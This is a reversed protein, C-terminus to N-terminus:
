RRGFERELRARDLRLLTPRGHPCTMPAAARGLSDLIGDMAAPTLTEGARVSVHCAATAAIRHRLDGPARPRERDLLDDLVERVFREAAAPPMLAPIEELRLSAPGFPAVTFGFDEFVAAAALLHAAQPAPLDVVLPFLLRQREVRRAESEALLREYMVREHAAHQDVLLLGEATEAIIWTSAYQALARPRDAAGTPDLVPTRPDRAAAIGFREPASSAETTPVPSDPAAGGWPTAPAAEGLALPRGGFPAVPRSTELGDRLARFILDHVASPRAFRVEHKAPHVNVDVADLPLDLFLVVVPFRGRPLLTAYAEGVAHLLRRDRIPRGNVYLMLDRTTPRQLSPASQLGTLGISGERRTVPRLAAATAPGFLDAVRAQLGDVAPWNFSEVGGSALRFAVGPHAAGIRVLGELLHAAETAPARLFKRRAPANHFLEEVQVTTGRPHAAPGAAVRRGAAVVVRTGESGGTSTTLTLRSVSAISPLAEGRFGLTSIAALDEAGRVKSTAHREIAALADDRDMGVGDDAVEVLDAGGAAVAVSVRSAGADLSNEVLEKVVSAPREVVEGAAIQNAVEPPLVQIRGM